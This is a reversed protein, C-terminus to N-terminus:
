EPFPNYPNDLQRQDRQWAATLLDNITPPKPDVPTPKPIAKPVSFGIGSRGAAHVVAGAVSNAIDDHGGPPHDVTDRGNRSTRRELNGLQALLKKDDLM